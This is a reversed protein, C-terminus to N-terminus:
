FVPHKSHLVLHSIYISSPGGNNFKSRLEFFGSKIEEEINASLERENCVLKPEITRSSDAPMPGGSGGRTSKFSMDFHKSSNKGRLDSKSNKPSFSNYRGRDEIM